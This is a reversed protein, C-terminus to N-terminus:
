RSTDLLWKAFREPGHTFPNPPEARNAATAAIVADRYRERMSPELSRGDPMSDFRRVQARDEDWGAAILRKAYEACIRATGPRDSLWPWFLATGKAASLKDPHHPDFGTIFHFHRLPYDAIYPIHGRWEVDHERLRWGTVNLGRDRLICHDFIGLAVFGTNIIGYRYFMQEAGVAHIAPHPDPSTPTVIISHRAALDGVDDLAGYVCSDADLFM